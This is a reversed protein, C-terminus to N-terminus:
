PSQNPKTTTAVTLWKYWQPTTGDNDKDMAKAETDTPVKLKKGKTKCKQQRGVIKM